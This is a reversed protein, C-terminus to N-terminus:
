AVRDKQAKSLWGAKTSVATLSPQEFTWYIAKLNSCHFNKCTPHESAYGSTKFHPM